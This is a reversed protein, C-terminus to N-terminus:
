HLKLDNLSAGETGTAESDLQYVRECYGFWPRQVMVGVDKGEITYLAEVRKYRVWVYDHGKVEPIIIFANELDTNDIPVNVRNKAYKFRGTATWPKDDADNHSLDIGLFLFEEPAAGLYPASNLSCALDLAHRFYGLTIQPFRKTITVDSSSSIIECGDFSNTAENYGIMGFFNPAEEGWLSSGVRYRTQRSKYIRETGGGMTVTVERGLPDNPSQGGPPAPRAAAPSEGATPEAATPVGRKYSIDVFYNAGGQDTVAWSELLYGNIVPLVIPEALALAVAHDESDAALVAFLLRGSGGGPGADFERSGHREVVTPM